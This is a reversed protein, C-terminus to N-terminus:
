RSDPRTALVYSYDPDRSLELTMDNNNTATVDLENLLRAYGSHTLYYAENGNHVAKTTPMLSSFRSKLVAKQYQPLAVAALVAIIIVVVLVEILTFGVNRISKM